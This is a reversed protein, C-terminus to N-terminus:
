SAPYLGPQSTMENASLSVHDIIPFEDICCSTHMAKDALRAILMNKAHQVGARLNRTTSARSNCLIGSRDYRPILTSHDHRRLWSHSPAHSGDTKHSCIDHPLRCLPHKETVLM